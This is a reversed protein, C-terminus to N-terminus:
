RGHMGGFMGTFMGMLDEAPTTNQQYQEFNNSMQVRLVETFDVNIMKAFKAVDFFPLSVMFKVIKYQAQNM